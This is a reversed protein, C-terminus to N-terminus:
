DSQQEEEYENKTRMDVAERWKQANPSFDVAAPKLKLGYKRLLIRCPYCPCKNHAVHDTCLACVCPPRIHSHDHLYPTPLIDAARLHFEVLTMRGNLGELDVVPNDVMKRASEKDKNLLFDLERRVTYGKTQLEGLAEDTSKKNAAVTHSLDRYLSPEELKVAREVVAVTSDPSMSMARKSKRRTVGVGASSVSSSKELSVLKDEDGTARSCVESSGKKRRIDQYIQKMLHTRKKHGNGQDDKYNVSLQKMVEEMTLSVGNGKEKKLVEVERTLLQNQRLVEELAGALYEVVPTWERNASLTQERLKSVASSHAVLQVDPKAKKLTRCTITNKLTQMPAISLLKTHLVFRLLTAATVRDSKDAATVREVNDDSFDIKKRKVTLDVAQIL